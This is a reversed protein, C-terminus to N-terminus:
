LSLYLGEVVDLCNKDKANDRAFDGLQSKVYEVIPRQPLGNNINIYKGLLGVFSLTLLLSHPIPTNKLPSKIPFNKM